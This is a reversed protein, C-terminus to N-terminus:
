DSRIIKVVASLINNEVIHAKSFEIKYHGFNIYARPYDQGDTMRIRDYLDELSHTCLLENDKVVLRNFIVPQGSQEKPTPQNECISLIMKEICAAARRFIDDITGALSIEMADYIPGADLFSTMKLACVPSTKVGRLILNQVPSGGRGFPLPATHFAICEYATFIESPVKWSWHPFFIYRPKLKQLYELNLDAPKTISFMNLRMYEDSKSHEFFWSKSAAVVYNTM